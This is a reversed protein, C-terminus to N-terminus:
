NSTVQLVKVNGNVQAGASVYGVAGPNRAVYELVEADSAKEPPPVGQGSFIQRQWFSKVANINRDLIAESFAARVPSSPAQDVAVVPQGNIWTTSHKLFVRALQAKSIESVSNASNVVIKFEPEAAPLSVAAAILAAVIALGFVTNRISM